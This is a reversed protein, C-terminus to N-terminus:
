SFPLALGFFSGASFPLAWSSDPGGFFAAGLAAAGLARTLFSDAARVALGDPAVTRRAGLPLRPPPSYPQRRLVGAVAVVVGM